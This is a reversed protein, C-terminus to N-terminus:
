RIILKKRVMFDGNQLVIFYIGKPYKNLNLTYYTDEINKSYELKGLPNYLMLKYNDAFVSIMKIKVYDNAPNPYVLFDKDTAVDEIETATNVTLMVQVSDSEGALDHTKLWFNYNGSYGSIPSFLLQSGTEWSAFDFLDPNDAGTIAYVLSDGLNLDVDNFLSDMSVNMNQNVSVSLELTDRTREPSHNMTLDVNSLYASFGRVGLSNQAYFEITYNEDMALGVVSAMVTSDVNQRAPDIKAEMWVSKYDDNYFRYVINEVKVTDPETIVFSSHMPLSWTGNENMTRFYITHNGPNLGSIDVILENDFESLDGQIELETGNGEAVFDDIFYELRTINQASLATAITWIMPLLFIYKKMM